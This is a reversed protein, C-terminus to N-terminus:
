VNQIAHIHVKGTFPASTEIVVATKSVSVIFVNVNASQNTESDIATATVFPASSFTKSFSHTAQHTNTFIISTSEVIVDAAEIQFFPKRRIYRYIKRFRNYDRAKSM